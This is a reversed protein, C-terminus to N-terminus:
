EIFFKILKKKFNSYPPYKMFPEFWTAKRLISKYHSFAKFGEEDHYKGMGSYGTGGFPLNPNSIHLITDNITGGGFSIEHIIRKRIKNNKTFIYLSLPSPLMKVKNIVDDFNDFEIVPLLPGFIEGEMIKDDFNVNELITPSIILNKEDFNGGFYVKDKEVLSKLRTFHNKNIISVYAENDHFENGHITEINKVLLKLFKEKVSKHILLYDPAICTQGGNLFKGWVLRKAAVELNADPMIFVPSKGGLELTVSSLHEAAAKMVIKGVRTSGTFFIKNFAQNLLETTEEVGGEVVHIYNEDFNNNIIEAMVKASNKSLESPKIIATNGAAIAPILPSLSLQYPYNWAGIILTTGLPEPFICSRGPFNAINTKVRKKKSWKSVNKIATNIEGYILALETEYTEFASKKFDKYIAENLKEENSKLLSHLKKLQTKRYEVDKTANSLFYQQQKNFISKINEM